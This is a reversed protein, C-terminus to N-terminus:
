TTLWKNLNLIPIAYHGVNENFINCGKEMSIKSFLLPIDNAVDTEIEVTNSGIVATIKASYITKVKRGDGFRYAHNSEGFMVKQQDTNKLKNIYQTLWEERCIAKSAMYDLLTSSWTEPM